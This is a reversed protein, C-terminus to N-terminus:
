AQDLHETSLAIVIKKEIFIQLKIGNLIGDVAGTMHKVAKYDLWSMHHSTPTGARLQGGYEGSM